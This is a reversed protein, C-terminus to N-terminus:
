QRQVYDDIIWGKSGDRLVIQLWGKEEKVWTFKEGPFVTTLLEFGIGSGSRVNLFGTPTQLIELVNDVGGAIKVELLFPSDEIFKNRSFDKLRLEEQIEGPYYPAQIFFRFTVTEGPFVLDEEFTVLQIPSYWSQPDYIESREKPTTLVLWVEFLLDQKQWLLPSTNQWQLEIERREGSELVLKDLKTVGKATILPAQSLTEKLYALSSIIEKNLYNDQTSLILIPVTGTSFEFETLRNFDFNHLGLGEYILGQEDILYAFPIGPLFRSEQLFLDFGLLFDIDLQIKDINTGWVELKEWVTLNVQGDQLGAYNGGWDLRSVIKKQHVFGSSLSIGALDLKQANELLAPLLDVKIKVLIKEEPITIKLLSTDYGVKSIILDYERVSIDELLNPTSGQTFGDFQIQAKTPNSVILIKRQNFFLSSQLEYEISYGHSFNADQTINRWIISELGPVIEIKEKWLSGIQVTKEGTKLALKSIPTKGIVEGDITVLLGQPISTVSLFGEANSHPSSGRSSKVEVSLILIGPVLILAILIVFLVRKM